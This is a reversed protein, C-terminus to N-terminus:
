KEWYALVEDGSGRWYPLRYCM